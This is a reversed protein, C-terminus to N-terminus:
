LKNNRMNYITDKSIATPAINIKINPILYPKYLSFLGTWFWDCITYYNMKKLSNRLTSMGANNIIINQM